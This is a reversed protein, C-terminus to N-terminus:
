TAAPRVSPRLAADDVVATGGGTLKVLFRARATGAPATLTQRCAVFGAGDAAVPVAEYSLLNEGPGFWALLLDVRGGPDLHQVDIWASQVYTVGGVAGVDFWAAGRQGPGVQLLQARDGGHVPEAVLAPRLDGWGTLGRALGTVASGDEFSANTLLNPPLQVTRPPAGKVVGSSRGGVAILGAGVVLVAVAVAVVKPRLAPAPATVPAAVTTAARLPAGDAPRVVRAGILAGGVSSEHFRSIASVVAETATQGDMRLLFSHRRQGKGYATPRIDGVAEMRRAMAAADLAPGDPDEGVELAVVWSTM